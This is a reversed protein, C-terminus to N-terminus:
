LPRLWQMAQGEDEFVAMDFPRTPDLAYAVEKKHIPDTRYAATLAPSSLVALRLRQPAFQAVAEPYFTGNVWPGLEFAAVQRRRVDLLWANLSYEKAAALMRAYDAQVAVTEVVPHWRVVLVNLDTRFSLTRSPLQM